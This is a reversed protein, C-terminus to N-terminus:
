IAKTMYENFFDKIFTFTNEAADEGLNSIRSSDETQGHGSENRM